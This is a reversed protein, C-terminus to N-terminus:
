ARLGRGWIRVSSTRRQVSSVQWRCSLRSSVGGLRAPARAAATQARSQQESPNQGQAFVGPIPKGLFRSSASTGKDASCGLRLGGGQQFHPSFVAETGGARNHTLGMYICPSKNAAQGRPCHEQKASFLHRREAM